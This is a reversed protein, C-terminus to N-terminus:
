AKTCNRVFHQLVNGNGSFIILVLKSFSQFYFLPTEVHRKLTTQHKQSGSSAASMLRNFSFVDMECQVKHFTKEVPSILAKEIHKEVSLILLKPM